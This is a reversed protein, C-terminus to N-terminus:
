ESECDAASSEYLCRYRECDPASTTTLTFDRPDNTGPTWEAVASYVTFTPMEARVAADLHGSEVLDQLVDQGIPRMRLRFEVRRPLTLPLQYARSLSHGGAVATKAGPLAREVYGKPYQASPAAEWFMHVPEGAADYINEHFMWADTEEGPPAEIAGDAIRGSEFVVSDAEDYGVVELWMRRDQSAGSPMSHGASTELTAVFTSPGSGEFEFSFYQISNQLACEEVAARMAERHPFDTLAVDVGAWIHDHSRRAPVGPVDAVVGFQGEM